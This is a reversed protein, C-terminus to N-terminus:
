WPTHTLSSTKAIDLARADVRGAFELVPTTLEYKLTAASMKQRRSIDKRLFEREMPTGGAPIIPIIEASTNVAQEAAICRIMLKKYADSADEFLKMYSQRGSPLPVPFGTMLGKGASPIGDAM